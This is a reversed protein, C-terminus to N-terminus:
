RGPVAAECARLRQYSAALQPQAKARAARLVHKATREARLWLAEDLQLAAIERDIASVRASAEQWADLAPTASLYARIPAGDGLAATFQPHYPTDIVPWRELLGIRLAEEHAAMDDAARERREDAQRLKDHVGRLGKTINGLPPASPLDLRSQLNKWTMRDAPPAAALAADWNGAAAVGARELFVESSKVPVDITEETSVAYGHAEDFSVRGDGDYDSAPTMRGLRDIGYLAAFFRTTYDDYDAEDIEPTCGAAERSAVTAAFICRDPSAATKARADFALTTFAGSFCQAFVGVVRGERQTALGERVDRVSLKEEGWLVVYNDDLDEENRQGHDTAYFLLTDGSKLAGAAQRLGRLIEGRSAGGTVDTVAHRRYALEVGGRGFLRDLVVLEWREPPVASVYSVDAAQSRGTSVYTLMDAPVVGARRLTRQVFLVNKEHAVANSPPSGGGSVIVGKWGAWAPGAGFFVAAALAAATRPNM